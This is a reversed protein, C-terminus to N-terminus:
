RGSVCEPQARPRRHEGCGVCLAVLRRPCAPWIGLRHSARETIASTTGFVIGTAAGLALSRRPASGHSLAVLAAVATTSIVALFFGAWPRAGRIAPGPEAAAIFLAIGGLIQANALWDGRSLRRHEVLAGGAPAMMLGTVLIPQVLALSGKRLAIFQMAYGAVGAAMGLLWRRRTRAGLTPQVAAVTRRAGRESRAARAGLLARLLPAAVISEVIVIAPIYARGLRERLREVLRWPDSLTRLGHAHQVTSLLTPIM